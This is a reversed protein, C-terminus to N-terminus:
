ALSAVPPKINFKKAEWEDHEGSKAQGEWGVVWVVMTEAQREKRRLRMQLQGKAGRARAGWRENRHQQQVQVLLEAETRMAGVAEGVRFLARARAVARGAPPSTAQRSTM